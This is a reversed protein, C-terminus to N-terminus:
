TCQEQPDTLGNGIAMGEFKIFTSSDSGLDANERVIKRSIAPVYHGAYSEGFVHFANRGYKGDYKDFLLTSLFDYIDSSVCDENHCPTGGYSFGTGVPQDLWIVTANNNWSHPNLTLSLDDEVIYPGNEGFMALQSSCGPGGSLWLMVPDSAPDNRSEFLWYFLNKEKSDGVSIYGADNFVSEPGPPAGALAAPALALVSFAISSSFKMKSAPPRSLHSLLLASPNLAQM